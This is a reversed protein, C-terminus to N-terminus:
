WDVCWRDSSAEKSSQCGRSMRDSNICCSWVYGSSEEEDEDAETQTHFRDPEWKGPHSYVTVYKLLKPQSIAEALSTAAATNPASHVTTRLSHLLDAQDKVVSVSDDFLSTSSASSRPSAYADDAKSGQARRNSAPALGATSPPKYNYRSSHSSRPAAALVDLTRRAATGFTPNPLHGMSSVTESVPLRRVPVPVPVPGSRELSMAFPSEDAFSFLPEDGGEGSSKLKAPENDSLYQALLGPHYTSQLTRGLHTRESRKDSGSTKAFPDLPFEDRGPESYVSTKAKAEEM